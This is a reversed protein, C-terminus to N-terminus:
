EKKVNHVVIRRICAQRMQRVGCHSCTGEEFIRECSQLQVEYLKNAATKWLCEIVLVTPCILLAASALYLFLLATLQITIAPATQTPIPVYAPGLSQKINDLAGTERLQVLGIKFVERLPSHKEFLFGSNKNETRGFRFSDKCTQCKTNRLFYAGRNRDELLFTKPNTLFKFKQERNRAAFKYGPNLVTKAKEEGEPIMKFYSKYVGESGKSYALQWDPHALGGILNEFPPPQKTTLVIVMAGDYFASITTVFLGMLLAIFYRIGWSNKVVQASSLLRHLIAAMSLFIAICAWAVKTFPKFVMDWSVKLGAEMTFMELKVPIGVIHDFVKLRDYTGIWTFSFASRGVYLRKLVSSDNNGLQSPSGWKGSHDIHYETTFNFKKGINTILKPYTGSVRCSNENCDYEIVPSFPLNYCELQLNQLDFSTSLYPMVVAQHSFSMKIMRLLQKKPVLLGILGVSKKHTALSATVEVMTDSTMIVMNRFAEPMGCHMFEQLLTNNFSIMDVATGDVQDKAISCLDNRMSAYYGNRSLKMIDGKITNNHSIMVIKKWGLRVLASEINGHTLM